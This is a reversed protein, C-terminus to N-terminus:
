SRPSCGAFLRFYNVMDDSERSSSHLEWLVAVAAAPRLSVTSRRNGNPVCGADQQSLLCQCWITRSHYILHRRFPSSWPKSLKRSIWRKALTIAPKIGQDSTGQSLQYSSWPMFTDIMKIYNNVAWLEENGTHMTPEIRNSVM